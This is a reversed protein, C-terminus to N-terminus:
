LFDLKRAGQYVSLLRRIEKESDSCNEWGLLSLTKKPMPNDLYCWKLQRKMEPSNPFIAKIGFKKASGICTSMWTLNTRAALFTSFPRRHKKVRSYLFVIDSVLTDLWAKKRIVWLSRSVIEKLSGIITFNSFISANLKLKFTLKVLM